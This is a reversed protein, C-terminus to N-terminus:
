HGPRGGGGDVAAPDVARMLAMAVVMSGEMKLRSKVLLSVGTTRAAALGLLDALDMRLTLDPEVVAVPRAGAIGERARLTWLQEGSATRIVFLVDARLDPEHTAVLRALAQLITGIVAERDGFRELQAPPVRDVAQGLARRAWAIATPALRM